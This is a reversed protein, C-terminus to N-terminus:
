KKRERPVEFLFVPKTILKLVEEESLDNEEILADLVDLISRDDSEERSM